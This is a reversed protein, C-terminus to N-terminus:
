LALLLCLLRWGLHVGDALAGPYLASGGLLGAGLAAWPRSLPELVRDALVTATPFPMM